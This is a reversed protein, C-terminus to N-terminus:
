CGASITGTRNNQSENKLFSIFSFGGTALVVTDVLSMKNIPNVVSEGLTKRFLNLLKFAQM